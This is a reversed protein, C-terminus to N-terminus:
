PNGLNDMRPDLYISSVGPISCSARVRYWVFYGTTSVNRNTITISGGLSNFDVWGTNPDANFDRIAKPDLDTILAPWPAPKDGNVNALQVGDLEWQVAPGTTNCNPPGILNFTVTDSSGADFRLCGPEVFTPRAPNGTCQSPTSTELADGAANVALNVPKGPGASHAIVQMPACLWAIVVMVVFFSHVSYLKNVYIM